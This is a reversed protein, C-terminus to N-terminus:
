RPLDVQVVAYRGDGIANGQDGVAVGQFHQLVALPEYLDAGGLAFDSPQFLVRDDVVLEVRLELIQFFLMGLIGDHGVTLQAVIKVQM